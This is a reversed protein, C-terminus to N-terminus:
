LQSARRESKRRRESLVGSMVGSLSVEEEVEEPDTMVSRNSKKKSEGGQVIKLTKAAVVELSEIREELHGHAQRQSDLLEVFQSDQLGAHSSHMPSGHKPSGQTEGEGGEGDDAEGQEFQYNRAGEGGAGFENPVVGVGNLEYRIEVLRRKWEGHQMKMENELQLLEGFAVHLGAVM